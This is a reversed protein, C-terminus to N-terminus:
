TKGDATVKRQDNILNLKLKEVNKKLDKTGMIYQETEDSLIMGTTKVPPSAIKADSGNTKVKQPQDLLL